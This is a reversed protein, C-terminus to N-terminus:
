LELALTLWFFLGRWSSLESVAGVEPMSLKVRATGDAREPLVLRTPPVFVVKAVVRSDCTGGTTKGNPSESLISRLAACVSKKPATIRPHGWAPDTVHVPLPDGLFPSRGEGHSAATSCMMMEFRLDDAVGM